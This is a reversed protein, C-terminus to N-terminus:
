SASDTGNVAQASDAEDTAQAPAAYTAEFQRLLGIADGAYTSPLGDTMFIAERMLDSFLTSQPSNPTAGLLFSNFVRYYPVEQTTTHMAGTATTPLGCLSGSDFTSRRINLSTGVLPDNNLPNPHEPVDLGYIRLVAPSETRHITVTGQERNNGPFDMHSLMEMQMAIQYRMSTDFEATSETPNGVTRAANSADVADIVMGVDVAADNPPFVQSHLNNWYERPAHAFREYCAQASDSTPTGVLGATGTPHFYHAESVARARELYGKMAMSTACWSSAVQNQGVCQLMRSNGGNRDVLAYFRATPSDSGRLNSLETIVGDHMGMGNQASLGPPLAETIGNARIELRAQIVGQTHEPTWRDAEMSLAMRAMEKAEALRAQAVGRLPEEMTGIHASIAEGNALLDRSLDYVNSGAPLPDSFLTVPHAQNQVLASPDLLRTVITASVERNVTDFSDILEDTRNQAFHLRGSADTEMFASRLPPYSAADSIYFLKQMTLYDKLSVGSDQALQRLRSRVEGADHTKGSQWEGLLDNDVLNAALRTEEESFGMKRMAERLIPTTVEHQERGQQFAEGKGIDHFLLVAKMFRDANFNEFGPKGRVSDELAQLDYHGKQQEYQTMVQQTHGAITLQPQGPASLDAVGFTSDLRRDFEPIARMESIMGSGSVDETRFREGTLQLRADDMIEQAKLGSAYVGSGRIQATVAEARDGFNTRLGAMLQDMRGQNREKASATLQSLERGSVRDKANLTCGYAQSMKQNVVELAARNEARIRSSFLGLFARGLPHRSEQIAGDRMYLTGRAASLSTLSQAAQATQASITLSM